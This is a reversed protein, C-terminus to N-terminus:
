RKQVAAPRDTREGENGGTSTGYVPLLIAWSIFAVPLFYYIMLKNFRM